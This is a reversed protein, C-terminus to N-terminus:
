ETTLQPSRGHGPDGYSADREAPISEATSGSQRAGGDSIADVQHARAPRVLHGDIVRTRTTDPGFTQHSGRDLRGACAHLTGGFAGERLQIERVTTGRSATHPHSRLARRLVARRPDREINRAKLHHGSVPEDGDLGIWIVSVPAAM